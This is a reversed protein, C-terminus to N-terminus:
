FGFRRGPVCEVANYVFDVCYLRREWEDPEDPVLSGPPTTTNQTTGSNFALGAAPYANSLMTCLTSAIYGASGNTQSMQFWVVRRLRPTRRQAPTLLWVPPRTRMRCCQVCLRRLIAPAGM